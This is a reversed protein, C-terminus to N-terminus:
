RANRAGGKRARPKARKQEPAKSTKEGLMRKVERRGIGRLAVLAARNQGQPRSKGLEWFAMAQRSVGVLCALQGQSLGLRTRLKKILLPSLRATKAQEEPATLKTREARKKAELGARLKDLTAVTKRLSSVQRRLTRVGQSLPIFAANVEKRALRIIESRLVQELKHM